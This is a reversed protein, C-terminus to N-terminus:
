ERLDSPMDRDDRVRSSIRHVRCHRTSNGVIQPGAPKVGPRPKNRALVADPQVVVITRHGPSGV